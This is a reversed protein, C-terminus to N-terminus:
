GRFFLTLTTSFVGIVSGVLTLIKGWRLKDEADDLLGHAASQMSLYCFVAGGLGLCLSACLVSSVLSIGLWLGAQKQLERETAAPAALPSAEHQMESPFDGPPTSPVKGHLRLRGADIAGWQARRGATVIATERRPAAKSKSAGFALQPM